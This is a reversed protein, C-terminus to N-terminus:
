VAFNSVWNLREAYQALYENLFEDSRNLIFFNINNKKIWNQIKKINRM